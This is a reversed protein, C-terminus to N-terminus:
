NCVAPRLPEEEDGATEGVVAPLDKKPRLDDAGLSGEFNRNLMLASLSSVVEEADETDGVAAVEGFSALASTKEIAIESRGSSINVRGLLVILSPLLEPSSLASFSTLPNALSSIGMSSTHPREEVEVLGDLRLLAPGLVLGAIKGAEVGAMTGGVAFPPNSQPAAPRFGGFCSSPHFHPAQSNVFGEEAVSFHVTHSEGFGPATFGAVDGKEMGLGGEVGKENPALEVVVSAVDAVLGPPNLQFAAPNFGGVFVPSQFHPTHSKIFGADAVSFHVTHSAGFGPVSGDEVVGDSREIGFGGEVGKTKPELLVEVVAVALPNSQFPAPNFSGLALVSSHFHPVQSKIFGADASSFHVTQSVGLGPTDGGLGTEPEFFIKEIGVGSEPGNRNPADLEVDDVEVVEDPNENPIGLGATDGSSGPEVPNREVGEVVAVIVVLPPVPPPNLQPAAPRFSGESLPPHLHSVQARTFGPLAISFHVTQSAGLGYCHGTISTSGNKKGESEEGVDNEGGNDLM